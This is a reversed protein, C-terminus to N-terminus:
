RLEPLTHTHLPTCTQRARRVAHALTALKADVREGHLSLSLATHGLSARSAAAFLPASTARCLLCPPPFPSSSLRDSM